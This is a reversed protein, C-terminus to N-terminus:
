GQLYGELADAHVPDRLKALAKSEIQRIRERTLGLSSGIQELTAPQTGHLGFRQELVARERDSLEALVRTVHTSLLGYAVVETPVPATADELREGISTAGDEGVPADLSTAERALAKLDEIRGVPLEVALALEGITPERGLTQTLAREVRTVRHMEEVVHVPLRITRSQDAVARGIMQRIWWTAYTSFKYGRTHDFKEVARILGLNGEQVLDSFSLGRGIQRKAVSVVLRLNAEVLHQKASQGRREITRLRARRGPDRVDESELAVAAAAGAAIRKAVDVEAEPSLLAVRGIEDLYLRTPDAVADPPEERAALGM